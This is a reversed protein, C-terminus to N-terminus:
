DQLDIMRHVEIGGRFFFGAFREMEDLLDDFFINAVVLVVAANEGAKGRLGVSVQVDAM